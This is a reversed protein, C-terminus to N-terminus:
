EGKKPAQDIDVDNMVNEFALSINTEYDGNQWTHSDSEILFVGKLEQIGSVEVVVSYGAQLDTYGDCIINSSEYIGKLIKNSEIYASNNEDKEQVVQFTGYKNIEDQNSKVEVINQVGKKTTYIIVKNIMEDLNKEYSSQRINVNSKLTFNPIQTGQEVISIKDEASIMSYIKNTQSAQIKYATLIIEYGTRDIAPYTCTKVDQPLTGVAIGLEGLIFKVINSPNENYYNKIFYNRNLRYAVDRCIVTKIQEKDNNTISFINGVFLILGDVEFIVKKGLDIDTIKEKLFDFELTRCSTKLEGSWSVRTFISNYPIGDIYINIM